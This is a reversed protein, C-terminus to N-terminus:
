LEFFATKNDKQYLVNFHIWRIFHILGQTTARKTYNGSISRVLITIEWTVYM